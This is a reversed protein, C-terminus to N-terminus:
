SRGNEHIRPELVHTLGAATAGVLLAIGGITLASVTLPAVLLRYGQVLVLFTLGGVLGWLLSSKRRANM